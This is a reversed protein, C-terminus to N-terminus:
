LVIEDGSLADVRDNLKVGPLPWTLVDATIRAGAMARWEAIAERPADLEQRGRILIGPGIGFNSV